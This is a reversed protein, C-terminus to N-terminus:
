SGALLLCLSGPGGRNSVVEHVYCPSYNPQLKITAFQAWVPCCSPVFQCLSVDVPFLQTLACVGPVYEGSTVDKLRLNVATTAEVQPLLDARTIPAQTM